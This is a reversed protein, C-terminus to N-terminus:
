AYALNSCSGVPQYYEDLPPHYQLPCRIFKILYPLCRSGRAFERVLPCYALYLGDDRFEGLSLMQLRRDDFQELLYPLCRSGRAFERVLPCYALYLGDGRFEGLSLMQLRRDDFQELLYPLCRNGRAFADAAKM